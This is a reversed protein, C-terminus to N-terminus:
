FQDRNIAASPVTLPKGHGTVEKIQIKHFITDSMTAGVGLTEISSLRWAPELGMDTFNTTWSALLKGDVYAKVGNRRVSVISSVSKGVTVLGPTHTTVTREGRVQGNITDFSCFTKADIKWAFQRRFASVIQAIEDQGSNRTFDIRFDYEDPPQYGLDYRANPQSAVSLEGNACTWKGALAHQRDEQKPLLDVADKWYEASVVKEADPDPPIVRGQGKIARVSIRHFVVENNWSGVGIMSEDPLRWDPTVLSPSKWLTISQLLHGDLWAKLSKARVEIIVSHRVHNAIGPTPVADRNKYTGGFGCAQWSDMMWLHGQGNVPFILNVDFGNKERTFDVRYDYEEPPQYPIALRSCKQLDTELGKNTLSWKGVVAHREPDVLPLLEVAQNWQAEVAPDPVYDGPNQPPNVPPQIPTVVVDQAASRAPIDVSNVVAPQTNGDTNGLTEAPPSSDQPAQAQFTANNSGDRWHIGAVILLSAVILAAAGVTLKTLLATWASKAPAVSFVKLAPATSKAVITEVSAALAPSCTRV